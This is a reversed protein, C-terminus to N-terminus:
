MDAMAALSIGDSARFDAKVRAQEDGSATEDPIQGISFVMFNVRRERMLFVTKPAPVRPSRARAVPSGAAKTDRGSGEIRALYRAGQKPVTCTSGTEAPAPSMRVM